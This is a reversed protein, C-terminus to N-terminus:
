PGVPNAVSGAFVAYSLPNGSHLETNLTRLV